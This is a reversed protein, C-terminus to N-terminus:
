KHSKKRKKKKMKQNYRVEEEVSGSTASKSETYGSWSKNIMEEYKSADEFASPNDKTKNKKKSSTSKSRMEEESELEDDTDDEFSRILGIEGNDDSGFDSVGDEEMFNDDDGEAFGDMASFDVNDSSGEVNDYGNIDDKLDEWGKTDPDEDDYHSKGGAADDM